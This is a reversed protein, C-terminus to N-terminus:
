KLNLEGGKQADAKTAQKPEERKDDEKVGLGLKGRLNEAAKGEPKAEKGNETTAAEAKEFFDEVKGMGDKLSNYVKGLWLFQAPTIASISRQIRKEIMETTVDYDSFKAIMGEIREKTVEVNAKLTNECQEVAMDVIDKPIVSLICARKRRAGDNAVKEYIDRPDVLRKAGGNKKFLIHKVQFEKEDHFNTELDTCYALVTSEGDRQEIEKIGADVNGWNRALVEALRISPGTIETGGRSYTYTAVAALTPRMCENNIRAIATKVDRPFQKAVQMKAITAAMARSQAVAVSGNSTQTLEGEVKVMENSM